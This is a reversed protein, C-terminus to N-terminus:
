WKRPLSDLSIEVKTTMARSTDLAGIIITTADTASLPVSQKREVRPVSIFWGM